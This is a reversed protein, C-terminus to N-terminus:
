SDRRSAAKAAFYLRGPPADRGKNNSWQLVDFRSYVVVKLPPQTCGLYISARGASDLIVPNANPITGTGDTYTTQSLTTGTRYTYVKGLAISNGNHDLFQKRPTVLPVIQPSQAQFIAPSFLLAFLFLGLRRM